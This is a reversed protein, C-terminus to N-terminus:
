NEDAVGELTYIKKATRSDSHLAFVLSAVYDHGAFEASSAKVICLHRGPGAKPQGNVQKIENLHVDGNEISIWYIAGSQGTVKVYHKGGKVVHESKTQNIATTLIEESRKLSDKVKVVEGTSSVIIPYIVHELVRMWWMIINDLAWASEEKTLQKGYGTDPTESQKPPRLDAGNVSNNRFIREEPVFMQDLKLLKRMTNALFHKNDSTRFMEFMELAKEQEKTKKMTTYMQFYGRSYRDTAKTTFSIDNPATWAIRRVGEIGKRDINSSGDNSLYGKLSKVVTAGKQLTRWEGAVFLQPKATAKQKRFPITVAFSSGGVAVGNDGGGHEKYRPIPFKYEMKKVEPLDNQRDEKPTKLTEYAWTLLQNGASARGIQFFLGDNNLRHYYLSIKGVAETYIKYEETAQPYCTVRELVPYYDAATMLSGNIYPRTQGNKFVKVGVTIQTGSIELTLPPGPNETRADQLEELFDVDCIAKLADYFNDSTVSALRAYVQRQYDKTVVRLNTTDDYYFLGKLVKFIGINGRELEGTYLKEAIESRKANLNEVYVSQQRGREKSREAFRCMSNAHGTAATLKGVANWYSGRPLHLSENSLRARDPEFGYWVAGPDLNNFQRCDARALVAIPFKDDTGGFVVRVDDKDSRLVHTIIREGKPMYKRQDEAHKIQPLTHVNTELPVLRKFMEEPYLASVKPDAKQEESLQVYTGEPTGILMVGGPGELVSLRESLLTDESYLRLGM